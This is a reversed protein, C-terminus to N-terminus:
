PAAGAGQELPLDDDTLFTAEDHCHKLVLVTRREGGFCSPAGRSYDDLVRYPWPSGAVVFRSRESWALGERLPAEEATLVEFVEGHKGSFIRQIRLEPFEPVALLDMYVQTHTPEELTELARRRVFERKAVRHAVEYDGCFRARAVLADPQIQITRRM